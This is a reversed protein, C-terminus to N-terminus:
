FAYSLQGIFSDNSRFPAWFSNSDPANLVQIGAGVMFRRSIQFSLHSIFVMDRTKLDFKYDMFLNIGELIAWSFEGGIAQRWRPKQSFINTNITDGDVLYLSNLSLSAYANSWKGQATMYTLRQYVPQIKLAQFEFSDDVGRKPIVGDIGASVEFLGFSRSNFSRSCGSGWFYHHNTFPKAMVVARESDSQEYFGTANLRMSNEPKVGGFLSCHNGSVTYDVKAGISNQLLVESLEPREVTYFIPIDKDRYRVSSPPPYAWENKGLVAGNKGTFSPNIQPINVGSAYLMIAWSNKKRKLHLGFLGEREQELLSFNKLPSIEGMAWFPTSEQWDIVKRGLSYESKGISRSLYAEPVSVMLGRDGTYYRLSGRYVLGWRGAERKDSINLQLFQNDVGEDFPTNMRGLQGFVLSGAAKLSHGTLLTTILVIVKFM